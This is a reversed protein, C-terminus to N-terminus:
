SVEFEWWFRRVGGVPIPMNEAIATLILLPGHPRWFHLRQPRDAAIPSGWRFVLWRLRGNLNMRLAVEPARPTLNVRPTEDSGNPIDAAEYYVGDVRLRVLRTFDITAYIVNWRSIEYEPMAASRDWRQDIRVRNGIASLTRTLRIASVEADYEVSNWLDHTASWPPGGIWGTPDIRVPVSHRPLLRDGIQEGNSGAEHWFEAAVSLDPSRPKVAVAQWNGDENLASKPRYDAPTSLSVLNGAADPSRVGFLNGSVSVQADILPTRLVGIRMQSLLVGPSVISM